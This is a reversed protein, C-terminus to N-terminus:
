LLFRKMFEYTSWTIAASPVFFLVRAQAGRAFVKMGEDRIMNRVLLRVNLPGFLNRDYTQIRTKLVDLPTSILGGLAGAAGGAVIQHITQSNGNPALLKKITEYTSFYVSVFPINLLVTVPYSAYLASFGETRIISRFCHRIGFYRSDRMQLRQKVVDLPTVVADHAMTACSGAVADKVPHHGEANAGIKTKVSEYTAFYLAHSPIAGAVIAGLGRYLRFCGEQRYIQGMTGFLRRYMMEKRRQMVQMRTKATDVPFMVFHEVAGATAGALLAKKFPMDKPEFEDHVDSLSHVPM